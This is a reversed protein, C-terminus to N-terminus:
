TLVTAVMTGLVIAIVGTIGAMIYYEKLDGAMVRGETYEKWKHMSGMVIKVLLLGIMLLSLVLLGTKGWASMLGVMDGEDPAGGGIKEGPTPITPLAAFAPTCMLAVVPALIAAAAQQGIRRAPAELQMLKLKLKLKVLLEKLPPCTTQPFRYFPKM